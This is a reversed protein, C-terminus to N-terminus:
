LKIVRVFYVTAIPTNQTHIAAQTFCSVRHPVNNIFFDLECAYYSKCEVLKTGDVNHFLIMKDISYNQARIYNSCINNFMSKENESFVVSENPKVLLQFTANDIKFVSDPVFESNSCLESQVIELPILVADPYHFGLTPLDLLDVLETKLEDQM